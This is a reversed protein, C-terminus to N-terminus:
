ALIRNKKKALKVCKGDKPTYRGCMVCIDGDTFKMSSDGKGYITAPEGWAMNELEVFDKMAYRAFIDGHKKSFESLVMEMLELIGGYDEIYKKFDNPSDTLTAKTGDAIMDKLRYM